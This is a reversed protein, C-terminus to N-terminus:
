RLGEMPNDLVTWIDDVPELRPPDLDSSRPDLVSRSPLQALRMATTAKVPLPGTFLAAAGPENRAADAVRRWAKDEDTGFEGHTQYAAVSGFTSSSCSGNFNMNNDTVKTGDPKTVTQNGILYKAIFDHYRKDRDTTVGGAQTWFHIAVPWAGKNEVSYMKLADGIQHLSALCKAKDASKRANSLVPLLTSILIAIIGIVVLLEVLTFGRTLARRNAAAGRLTTKM